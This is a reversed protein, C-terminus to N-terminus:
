LKRYKEKINFVDSAVEWYPRSDNNNGRNSYPSEKAVTKLITSKLVKMIMKQVPSSKMMEFYDDITHQQYKLVAQSESTDVWNEFFWSDSNHSDVARYWDDPFAPLGLNANGRARMDKTIVRWSDDGVINFKKHIVDATVANVLALGVDRADIGHERMNVPILFGLKAMGPGRGWNKDVSAVAPLRIVTWPLSSHDLMTENQIKHASYNDSAVQPSDGNWPKPDNNPNCPGHTAFSSTFIFQPKQSLSEAAAILNETGHLNVDIALQAKLYALAPIIAALHFVVDPEIEQFKKIVEEKNTIDGWVVNFGYYKRLEKLKSETMKNKLDFAFVKYGQALLEKIVNGGVSGLAGTVLVKKMAISPDEGSECIRKLGKANQQFGIMVAEKSTYMVLPVLLGTFNVGTKYHTKEESIKELEMYREANIMPASFTWVIRKPEFEKLVCVAERTKNNGFQEKIYVNEGIVKNCDAKPQFTNWNKYHEFDTLVSRVKDIPADIEIEVNLNVM